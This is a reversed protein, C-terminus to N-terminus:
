SYSEFFYFVHMLEPIDVSGTITSKITNGKLPNRKSKRLNMHKYLIIM